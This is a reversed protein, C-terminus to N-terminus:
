QLTGREDFLEFATKANALFDDLDMGQCGLTAAMGILVKFANEWADEAEAGAEEQQVFWDVLAEGVSNKLEMMTEFAIESM